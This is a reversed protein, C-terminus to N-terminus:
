LLDQHQELAVRVLQGRTHVGTKQFLRQLLTKVSTESVLLRAAIEKNTLGDLLYRLLQRDRESLKGEAPREDAGVALKLYQQDLWGGGQAVARIAEALAGLSNEKLFIGAAGQRILRRAEQGSVWATVVLVPGSFGSRRAEPLFRSGREFGLDYDLLVVDIASREVIQLAEAISGCYTVEFGFEASLARAVSECFLVHDDILLIHFRPYEM